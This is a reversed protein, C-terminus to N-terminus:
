NEICTLELSDMVKRKGSGLTHRIKLVECKFSSMSDLDHTIDIIDGPEAEMNDLFVTVKPMKRIDKNFAKVFAAVHDIMAETTVAFFNFLDPNSPEKTGYTSMSTADSYPNAKLYNESNNSDSSNDKYWRVTFSNILDDFTTRM